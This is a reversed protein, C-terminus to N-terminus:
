IEDVVVEIQELKASIYEMRDLMIMIADVRDTIISRNMAKEAAREEAILPSIKVKDGISNVLGNIRAVSTELKELAYLLQPQKTTDTM